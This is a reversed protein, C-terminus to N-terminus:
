SCKSWLKSSSLAALVLNKFFERGKGQSPRARWPVDCVTTFECGSKVEFSSDDSSTSEGGGPDLNVTNFGQVFELKSVRLDLEISVNIVERERRGRRGLLFHLRGEVRRRRVQEM